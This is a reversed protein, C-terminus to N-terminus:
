SISLQPLLPISLPWRKVLTGSSTGMAEYRILTWNPAMVINDHFAEAYYTVRFGASGYHERQLLLFSLASIWRGISIFWDVVFSLTVMEWATAALNFQVRPPRIDAVVSGRASVDITYRYHKDVSALSGSSAETVDWNKTFIRSEGTRETYRTRAEDFHGFKQFHGLPRLLSYALRLSIGVM